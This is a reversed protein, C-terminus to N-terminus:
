KLLRSFETPDFLWEITSDQSQLEEIRSADIGAGIQEYLAIWRMRIDNFAENGLIQYKQAKVLQLRGNLKEVLSTDGVREAFGLQLILLDIANQPIQKTDLFYAYAKKPDSSLFQSTAAAERYTKEFVEPLESAFKNVLDDFRDRDKYLHYADKLAREGQLRLSREDDTMEEFTKLKEFNKSRFIQYERLNPYPVRISFTNLEKNLQVSRKLDKQKGTDPITYYFTRELIKQNEETDKRREFVLSLIEMDAARLAEESAQSMKLPATTFNDFLRPALSQDIAGRLSSPDAKRNEEFALLDNEIARVAREKNMPYEIHQLPIQLLGVAALEWPWIKSSPPKTTQPPKGLDSIAQKCLAAKAKKASTWLRPILRTRKIVDGVLLSQALLRGGDVFRNIRAPDREVDEKSFILRSGIAKMSNLDAASIETQLKLFIDAPAGKLETMRGNKDEIWIEVAQSPDEDFAQQIAAVSPFILFSKDKIKLNESFWFTNGELGTETREVIDALRINQAILPTALFVCFTLVPAM